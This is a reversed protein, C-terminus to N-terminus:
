KANEKCWRYSFLIASAPDDHHLKGAELLALFQGPGMKADLEEVYWKGNHARRATWGTEMQILRAAHERIIQDRLEIVSGDDAFDNRVIIKLHEAVIEAEFGDLNMTVGGPQWPQSLFEEITM